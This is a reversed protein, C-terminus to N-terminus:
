KLKIQLWSIETSNFEDSTIHDFEIGREDDDDM